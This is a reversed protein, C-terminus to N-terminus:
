LWKRVEDDGTYKDKKAADKVEKAKAGKIEKAMVNDPHMDYFKKEKTLYFKADATELRVTSNDTYFVAELIKM